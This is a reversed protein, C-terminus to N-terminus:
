DPNSKSPPFLESLRLFIENALDMSGGADDWVSTPAFIGWLEKGVEFNGQELQIIAARIQRALEGCNDITSSFISDNPRQEMENAAAHLLEILADLIKTM